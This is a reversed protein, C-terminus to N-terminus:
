LWVIQLPTQIGITFPLDKTKVEEQLFFVIEHHELTWMHMSMHDFTPHHKWSRKRMKNKLYQINRQILFDDVCAEKGLLQANYLIKKHEEYIQRTTLGNDLRDQIWAKL